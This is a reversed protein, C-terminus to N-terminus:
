APLQSAKWRNYESQIYSVELAKATLREIKEVEQVFDAMPKAPDRHLLLHIRFLATANLIAAFSAPRGLLTGTKPIVNPLINSDLRELLAAIDDCTAPAFEEGIMRAPLLEQDCRVLFRKLDTKFSTLCATFAAEFTAADPDSAPQVSIRDGSHDSAVSCPYTAIEPLQVAIFKVKALAAASNATFSAINLGDKLCELRFCFSPYAQARSNDPHLRLNWTRTDARWSMEHLSLLFAPGSIRAGVLDCFAETAILVILNGARQILRQSPASGLATCFQVWTNGLEERLLEIIKDQASWFVAHGFEHGINAYLPLNEEELSALRLCYLKMGAGLKAIDEKLLLGHLKEKLQGSFSSITYNHATTLSYFIHEGNAPFLRNWIHDCYSVLPWSIHASSSAEVAACMDQLLILTNYLLEANTIPPPRASSRLLKVADILLQRAQNSAPTPFDSSDIRELRRLTKEILALSKSYVLDRELTDM